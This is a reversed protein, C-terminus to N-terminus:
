IKIYIILKHDLRTQIRSIPLSVMLSNGDRTVPDGANLQGSYIATWASTDSFDLNTGTLFTTDTNILVNASPGPTSTTSKPNFIALKNNELAYSFYSAETTTWLATTNQDNPASLYYTISNYEQSISIRDENPLKNPDITSPVSTLTFTFLFESSLTSFESADVFTSSISNTNTTFDTKLYKSDQQITTSFSGVAANTFPINLEAITSLPFLDTLTYQTNFNTKKDKPNQNFYYQNVTLGFDFNERYKTFSIKSDHLHSYEIPTISKSDIPIVKM